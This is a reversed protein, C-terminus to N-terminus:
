AGGLQGTFTYSLGSQFNKIQLFIEKLLKQEIYTLNKPSVYNDATKNGNSLAEAQVRLRIQMLYTYAQTIEQYNQYNLINRELLANLREMTNTAWIKNNLAYIRAYDVIPMMSSKIDFVRRNEGVSEVVINGFISIPPSWPLVNRVFLQFFRPNNPLIEDLYERLEKAYAQEGFGSRFDFFIKVRLLDESSASNIWQNFYKKWVSVPQCWDPNQAMNNGDCYTYGAQNLWGCVKTGLQLFYSQVSGRLEPAINEFVIANDQDTRLTQEQRGESGFVIFSFKAPPEGLEKLAFEIFKQLITDVVITTLHNINQPKAGSNILITILYPLIANRKIIDEPSSANKIEWLLVAPSYKRASLLDDIHILGAIKGNLDTIFLHSINNLEMALWSEFVHSQIPLSHIPSSMIALVPSDFHIDENNLVKRLDHDTVVGCDKGSDDRVLLVDTKQREMLNAADKITTTPLCIIPSTHPINGLQQNFFMLATQMESLLKELEKEKAVIETIDEVIGDFYQPNDDEDKVMVEWVSADFTTGDQRKLKVVDRKLGEPFIMPDFNKPDEPNKYFSPITVKYLDEKDTYGMLKVLAPNVEIFKPNKGITRRFIGVNLNNALTRFKEESEGLANEVLKRKTIDTIVAMFGKKEGISIQTASLIVDKYLGSKSKLKTEFSEPISKGAILEQIYQYGSKENSESFIESVQMRSFEEISYELFDAITKNAYMYRGELAMLMGEAASEVLTRYKEESERLANEARQQLKLTTYSQKIISALLLAIVALIFLSIEILSRTIADIETKVDDIYVGTGIIWGWPIFGKVYSIKPEIRKEDDKWQWMYNVYGAGQSKVLKVFEVFVRKGEPDTYDSLDKGNLDTRYPHIIMRPHMDNIWFYDKMEQGYHLNRFQEVAQAQALKRTLLGKREDNELKALINWASNTLERIMERKRDMSNKEIAPIIILFFSTIFLAITVATPFIYRGLFSKWKKSTDSGHM